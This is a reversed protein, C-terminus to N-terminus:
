VQSVASACFKRKRDFLIRPKILVKFLLLLSSLEGPTEKRRWQGPRCFLMEVLPRYQSLTLQEFMLRVTPFDGQFSTQIIQGHLELREEMIEVIAPQNEAMEFFPKQTLAVEAGVESIM